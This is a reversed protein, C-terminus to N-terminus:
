NKKWLDKLKKWINQYYASSNSELEVNKVGKALNQYKQVDSFNKKLLFM